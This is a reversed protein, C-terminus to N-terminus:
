PPYKIDRGKSTATSAKLDICLHVNSNKKTVFVMPACWDTLETIKSITGALEMKNLEAQVKTLLPIFARRAINVHYLPANERLTIKVSQCKM